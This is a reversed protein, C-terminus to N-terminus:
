RCSLHLEPAVKQVLCNIGLCLDPHLPWLASQPCTKFFSSLSHLTQRRCGVHRVKWSHRLMRHVTSYKSAQSKLHVEADLACYQIQIDSKESTGWCGTYLVTNLHRVKWIYRLMRHVTSHQSTQSKLHVEANQTCYQTSIGSKESTGWCEAYLVTNLHRIKWIYRLLDSGPPSWAGMLNEMCSRCPSLDAQSDCRNM